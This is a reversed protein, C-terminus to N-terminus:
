GKKMTEIDKKALDARGIKEYLKARLTYAANTMRPNKPGDQFGRYTQDQAIWQSLDAIAEDTKGLQAYAQGRFFHTDNVEPNAKIIKSAESAVKEWQQDAVLETLVLRWYLYHKRLLPDQYLAAAAGKYDKIRHLVRAKLGLFCHRYSDKGHELTATLTLASDCVKLAEQPKNMELLQNAYADAVALCNPRKQYSQSLQKLAEEDDMDRKMALKAQLFNPSCWDHHSAEAQTIMKELQHFRGTELLRTGADFFEQESSKDVRYHALSQEQVKVPVDDSFSYVERMSGTAFASFQWGGFSSALCM